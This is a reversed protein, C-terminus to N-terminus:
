VPQVGGDHHFYLGLRGERVLPPPLHEADVVGAAFGDAQLAAAHARVDEAEAADMAVRLMGTMRFHSRARVATAVELMEAQAALTARHVAVARERGWREVTEHYMPAAGAIFFGGNRGSAGSAVERAELVVVSAGRRTLQWATAVGGAGAGVVCVDATAATRLAPRPAYPEDQWLPVTSVVDPVKAGM